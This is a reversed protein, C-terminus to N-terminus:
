RTLVPQKSVVEHQKEVAYRWDNIVNDFNHDSVYISANKSYILNKTLSTIYTYLDYFNIIAMNLSETLDMKNNYYNKFEYVVNSNYTDVHNIFPLNKDVLDDIFAHATNIALESDHISDISSIFGNLSHFANSSENWFPFDIKADYNTKSYECSNLNSKLLRSLNNDQKINLKMFELLKLAYKCIELISHKSMILNDKTDINELVKYFAYIDREMKLVINVHINKNILMEFCIDNYKKM